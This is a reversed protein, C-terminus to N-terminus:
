KEAMDDLGGGGDFGLVEDDDHAVTAILHRRVDLLDGRPREGHHLLLLVAGAVRNAHREGSEGGVVDHQTVARDDHEGAVGREQGSVRERGQEELM